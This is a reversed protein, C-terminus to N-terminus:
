DDDYLIRWWGPRSHIFRESFMAKCRNPRQLAPTEGASRCGVPKAWGRMARALSALAFREQKCACLDGLIKNGLPNIRARRAGGGKEQAPFRLIDNKM